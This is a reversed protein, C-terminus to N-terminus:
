AMAHSTGPASPSSLHSELVSFWQALALASMYAHACLDISSCGSWPQVHETGRSVNIALDNIVSSTVGKHGGAIEFIHHFVFYAFTGIFRCTGLRNAFKDCFAGLSRAYFVNDEITTSEEIVSSNLCHSITGTFTAQLELWM